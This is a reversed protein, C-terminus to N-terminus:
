SHEFLGSRDLARIPPASASHRALCYEVAKRESTKRRNPPPHQRTEVSRWGNGGVEAEGRFPRASCCELDSSRRIKAARWLHVSRRTAQRLAQRLSAQVTRRSRHFAARNTGKAALSLNTPIPPARHFCTLMGWWVTALGRPPLCHFVTQCAM